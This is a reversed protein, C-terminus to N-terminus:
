SDITLELVKQAHNEKFLLKAANEHVFAKLQEDNLVKEQRIKELFEKGLQNDSFPYDVSYLVRELPMVGLLCRLPNTDFTGSTTIWINNHMVQAFGRRLGFMRSCARDIRSFMYPLLEGYHGIIIKLRPYDDFVKCALLRLITTATSAHWGFVFAGIGVAAVPRSELGGGSYMAENM